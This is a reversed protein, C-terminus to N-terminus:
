WVKVSHGHPTGPMVQVGDMVTTWIFARQMTRGAPLWLHTKGLCDQLCLAPLQVRKPNKKEEKSKFWGLALRGQHNPLAPLSGSLHCDPSLVRTSLTVAWSGSCVLPVPRGWVWFAKPSGSQFEKPIVALGLRHCASQLICQGQGRADQLLFKESYNLPM